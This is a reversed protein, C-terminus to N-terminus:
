PSETLNWGEIGVVAQDAGQAWAPIVCSVAKAEGPLLILCNDEWYAPGIEPGEVGARAKLWVLFAPRDGTNRVRGHLRVEGSTDQSREWTVEVPVPPLTALARYDATSQPLTEFIGDRERDRGPIDPTSSLWYRNESVIREGDRLELCLLWTSPKPEPPEPAPFVRTKGDEEVSVVAEAPSGAAAGDLGVCWARAQLHDFRQRLGNIVWVTGDRYAYQVHLPECAKKAGYYAATARLYWDVYQWTMAAPWAADYKWTTIGTADYKNWGYAEFMGRASAYNMAYLKRCFDDFDAAPGYSREMAKLVADFYEAGQTVTHFSWAETAMPRDLDEPPLMQRLSDRSALVGGIGGSQAFGWAVDAKREIWYYHAPSAYTWLERTGTRTGGTKKRTSITFTGSHPQYTRNVRHKTILDRYAHDLTETPFTEDHGLFHALSPHNRIRLLTDEVCAIALNEDPISRGFLQQTVMVGLEDCLDYFTDTERISFGESRLMNLGAERAYRILAEYRNRSLNLLMDSTMWAGGRILIRRGNVMYYRWDEENLATTIERIGFRTACADSVTGDTEATIRLTYLEQPGLPAPWWVRPQRIELEPYTEPRFFIERTEAPELTATQRITGVGDIVASLQVEVPQDTNNRAFVSLIVTARDLGPTDLHTEAYPHRLSVPGDARLRVPQWLGTNMDPPQPNHDDWGTTAELQKTRAGSADLLGPPITEIALANAGGFRIHETVPLEFRRFMGSLKEPGAVHKGNLWVNARYNIGDLQLFIHRGRWSEPVMCETRWWWSARFPSDAPMELWLGDQYGPIKKLNLGYYPDPYEGHEVLAGLVTKPVTVPFWSSADFGETSLSAGDARIEASSQLRWDTDLPLVQAPNEVCFAARALMLGLVLVGAMRDSLRIGYRYMM